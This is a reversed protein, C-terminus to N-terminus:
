LFVEVVRFMFDGEGDGRGRVAGRSEADWALGCFRFVM